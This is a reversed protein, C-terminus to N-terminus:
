VKEIDEKTRKHINRATCIEVSDILEAVYVEFGMMKGNSWYRDFHHVKIIYVADSCIVYLIYCANFYVHM